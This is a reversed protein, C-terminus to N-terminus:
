PTVFGLLVSSYRFAGRGLYALRMLEDRSARPRAINAFVGQLRRAADWYARALAFRDKMLIHKMYVAGDAILYARLLKRRDLETRRGHNHLVLVDPSYVIKVGARSARYIFDTDEGAMLRTGPGFRVDFSGVKDILSRRFAINCGTLQFMVPEAGFSVRERSTRITMPLDAKDYLEVRGGLLMLAPDAAFEQWIAALWETDVLCDDDTVAIISGRAQALGANRAQAAGQRPEFLYHVPLRATRAIEQVIERTGDNSNNNVCIVECAVDPPLRAAMLKGLCESLPKARNSTAIVVSIAPRATAAGRRDGAPEIM